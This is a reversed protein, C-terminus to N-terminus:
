SIVKPLFIKINTKLLYGNKAFFNIFITFFSIMVNVGLSGLIVAEALEYDLRDAELFVCIGAGSLVPSSSTSATLSTSSSSSPLLFPISL